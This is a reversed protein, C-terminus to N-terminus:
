QIVLPPIIVKTGLKLTRFNTLKNVNALQIYYKPSDYIENSYLPLADGIQVTKIHSMDPSSSINRNVEDATTNHSAFQFSAKARICNNNNDFLQYEYSLSELKCKFSLGGFILDVDKPSHKDAIYNYCEQNIKNVQEAVTKSGFVGTGDLILDFSIVEQSYGKFTKAVPLKNDHPNNETYNLKKQISIKEPNIVSEFSNIKLGPM